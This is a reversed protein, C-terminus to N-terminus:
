RPPAPARGAGGHEQRSPDAGEKRDLLEKKTVALWTSGERKFEVQLYGDSGERWPKRFLEQLTLAQRFYVRFPYLVRRKAAAAASQCEPDGYVRYAQGPGRHCAHTTLDFQVTEETGLPSQLSGARILEQASNLSERYSSAAAILGEPCPEAAPRGETPSLFLLGVALSACLLLRRSM